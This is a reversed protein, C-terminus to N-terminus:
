AVIADLFFTKNFTQVVLYAGRRRRAIKLSM